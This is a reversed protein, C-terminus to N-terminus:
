STEKTGCWKIASVITGDPHLDLWRYAPPSDEDLAFYHVEPLFQRCTSPTALLLMGNQRSEYAQHVHGWLMCRVNSYQEVIAWLEAANRLPVTDLWRSGSSIPHHHMCILVNKDRSAALLRSLGDLEDKELMGGADGPNNTNLMPILWDGLTISGCYYFPDETLLEQMYAPADHNGPLCFVPLGLSAFCERFLRYAGRSEDQAIDGSVLVADAPFHQQQATSITAMLTDLTRVGRMEGARDAFLHPDTFQLLRYVSM